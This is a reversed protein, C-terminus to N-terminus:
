KKHQLWAFLKLAINKQANTYRKMISTELNQSRLVVPVDSVKKLVEAIWGMHLHEVQIIDMKNKALDDILFSKLERQKYKSANYPIPSFLNILAGFISNGTQVNLIFPECFKSLQYSSLEYDAEKRYCVFAIHHGLKHLSKTVGSVSLKGGDITPVPVQPSIQLIKM